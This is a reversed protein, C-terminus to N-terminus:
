RSSFTPTFSPALFFSPSVLSVLFFDMILPKRPAIDPKRGGGWWFGGGGEGGGKWGGEEKGHCARRVLVSAM